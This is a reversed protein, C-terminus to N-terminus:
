TSMIVLNISSSIWGTVQHKISPGTTSCFNNTTIHVLGRPLSNTSFLLVSSQVISLGFLNERMPKVKSTIRAFALM